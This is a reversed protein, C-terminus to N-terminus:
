AGESSLKTVPVEDWEHWTTNYVIRGTERAFRKLDIGCICWDDDPTLHKEDDYLYDSAKIGFHAELEGVIEVIDQNLLRITVCM